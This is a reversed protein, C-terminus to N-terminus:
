STKSLLFLDHKWGSSVDARIFVFSQGKIHTVLGFGFKRNEVLMYLIEPNNNLLSHKKLFSRERLM